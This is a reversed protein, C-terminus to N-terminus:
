VIHLVIFTCGNSGQITGTTIAISVPARVAIIHYKGILIYVFTCVGLYKHIVNWVPGQARTVVIGRQGQGVVEKLAPGLLRLWGEARRPLLVVQIKETCVLM